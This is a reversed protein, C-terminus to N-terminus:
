LNIRHCHISQKMSPVDDVVVNVAAAVTAMIDQEQMHILKKQCKHAFFLVAKERKRADCPVSTIGCKVSRLCILQKSSSVASLQYVM